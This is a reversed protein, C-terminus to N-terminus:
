AETVAGRRVAEIALQRRREDADDDYIEFKDYLRDLHHRVASESVVLDAAIQKTPATLAFRDPGFLPRCLAALVDRERRTLEPVAAVQAAVTRRAGETQRPARFVLESDGVRIRDGDRLPRDARVRQENVFTGNTSDLDTIRWGSTGTREVIAHERSVKDDDIRAGSSAARGLTTEGVLAFSEVLSGAKWLELRPSRAQVDEAPVPRVYRTVFCERARCVPPGPEWRVIPEDCGVSSSVMFREIRKAAAERNEPVRSTAPAAKTAAAGPADASGTVPVPTVLGPLTVTGGTVSGGGVVGGVWKGGM